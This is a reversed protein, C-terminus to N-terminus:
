NLLFYLAYFFLIFLIFCLLKEIKNLIFIKPNIIKILILFILGPTYLILSLLLNIFGAAYLLWISYICSGIGIFLNFKNIKKKCTIKILYAGVLFYPVLIMESAITLLKNYNIKTIWILILCIQMSINTLWLAYLPAQYSNQKSLIKPFIKNKAAIWPVEAAMITWSLYSGCVSIILGLSIFIYGWKGILITMISAMSPNKIIALNSRSMIGFPLLSVLLYIFLAIFVALLTAKGVDKSNKAKNSLIVAGELGIFVWLTILMTDKVQKFISIKTQLGLLDISFLKFNFFICALIIFISLPILKCLTTIININSATQTGKLLLFHIIWLLISAGLISIWTNGCGFIIRNPTDILIGIASFVVVLYSINAIVACLWYGWTAYFGILNGFGNKAYSFIGGQLNPELKNLLLLSLALFFIGIGTISWGIILALPSAIIAMNQPLSFVGAGLISSLVLSTLAILNLKKNM